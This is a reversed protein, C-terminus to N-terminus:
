HSAERWQTTSNKWLRKETQFQDQTNKSISLREKEGMSGPTGQHYVPLTKM